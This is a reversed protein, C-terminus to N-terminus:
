IDEKFKKIIIKRIYRTKIGMDELDEEDFIALISGDIRKKEFCEVDSDPIALDKLWQCLEKTTM